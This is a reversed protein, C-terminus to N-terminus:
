KVGLERLREQLFAEATEYRDSLFTENHPHIFCPCSMRDKTPDEGDPVIVRHTTAVYEGGTLEQLMDGINIIISRSRAPVDYWVGGSGEGVGGEKKHLKVQLGPASGCPLVTILNIDEHAAARIPREAGDKRQQVLEEATKPDDTLSPYHLVRFLTREESMSDSLHSATWKKGFKDEFKQKIEASMHDDIWQLLQRGLEHMQKALQQAKASVGHGNADKSPYRGWPSYLHFYHKLDKM